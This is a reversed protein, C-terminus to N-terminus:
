KKTLREKILKKDTKEDINKGLIKEVGSVVLASLELHASRLAEEKEAQIQNKAASVLGSVEQKAKELMELRKADAQKKAQEMIATAQHKAERIHEAVEANTATLKKEIEEANSLSKAITHERDTMAKMLPKLAFKWLVFFVIAFNVLQAAILKWDIHFTKILEDM